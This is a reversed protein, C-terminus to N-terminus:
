FRFELSGKTLPLLCVMWATGLPLAIIVKLITKLKIRFKKVEGYTELNPKFNTNM